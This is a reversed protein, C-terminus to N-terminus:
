VLLRVNIIRVVLCEQWFQVYSDTCGVPYRFGTRNLVIFSFSLFAKTICAAGEFHLISLFGKPPCLSSTMKEYINKSTTAWFILRYLLCQSPGIISLLRYSSKSFIPNKIRTIYGSLSRRMYNTRVIYKRRCPESYIYISLPSDVNNMRVTPSYAHRIYIIRTSISARYDKPIRIM